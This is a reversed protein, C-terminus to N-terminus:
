RRGKCQIWKFLFSVVTHISCHLVFGCLYEHTHSLSLCLSWVPLSLSQCPVLAALHPNSHWLLLHPTHLVFFIKSTFIIMWSYKHSPLFVLLSPTSGQINILFNHAPIYLLLILAEQDNLFTSLSLLINFSWVPLKNISIQIHFFTLFQLFPLFSCCLHFLFSFFFSPSFHLQLSIQAIQQFIWCLQFVSM